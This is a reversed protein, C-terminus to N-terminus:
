PQKGKLWKVNTERAWEERCHEWNKDSCEGYVNARLKRLETDSPIIMDNM